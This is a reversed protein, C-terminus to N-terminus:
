DNFFMRLKHMTKFFIAHPLSFAVTELTPEEAGEFIWPAAGVVLIDIQRKLLPNVRNYFCSISEISMWFM